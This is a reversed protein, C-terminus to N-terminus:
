SNRSKLSESEIHQKDGNVVARNQKCVYMCLYPIIDNLTTVQKM